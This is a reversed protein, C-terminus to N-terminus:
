SSHASRGLLGDKNLACFPSQQLHFHVWRYAESPETPILRCDEPQLFLTPMLVYSEKSYILATQINRDAYLKNSCIIFLDTQNFEFAFGVQQQEFYWFWKPAPKAKFQQYIQCNSYNKGKPKKYVKNKIWYYKADWSM